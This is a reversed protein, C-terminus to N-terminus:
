FTALFTLTVLVFYSLALSFNLRSISFAYFPFYNIIEYIKNLAFLFHFGLLVYINDFSYFFCVLAVLFVDKTHAFSDKKAGFDKLIFCFDFDHISIFVSICFCFLYMSAGMIINDQQISNSCILFFPNMFIFNYYSFLISSLYGICKSDFVFQLLMLIIFFANLFAVIYLKNSDSLVSPINFISLFSNFTSYMQQSIRTYGLFSVIQSSLLLNAM